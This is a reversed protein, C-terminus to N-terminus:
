PDALTKSTSGNLESICTSESGVPVETLSKITCSPNVPACGVDNNPIRYWWVFAVVPVHSFRFRVVYGTSSAVGATFAFLEARVGAATRRAILLTRFDNPEFWTLLSM